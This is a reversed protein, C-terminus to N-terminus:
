EKKFLYTHANGIWYFNSSTTRSRDLAISEPIQDGARFESRATDSFADLLANSWIGRSHLGTAIEKPM